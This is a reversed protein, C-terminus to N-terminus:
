ARQIAATGELEPFRAARSAPVALINSHVPDVHKLRELGGDGKVQFFHFAPKLLSQLFEQASDVRLGFGHATHV